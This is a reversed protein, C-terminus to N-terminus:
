EAPPADEPGLDGPPPPPAKDGHHKKDGHRKAAIDSLDIKGDANSDFREFVKEARDEGDPGAVFEEKTISGDSNADLKAFREDAKTKLFNIYEEKSVARDGDKDAAEILWGGKHQDSGHGKHDSANAIGALSALAIVSLTITKM